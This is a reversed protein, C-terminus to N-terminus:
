TLHPELTLQHTDTAHSNSTTTTINTGPTKISNLLKVATDHIVFQDKQISIFPLASTMVIQLFCSFLVAVDCM